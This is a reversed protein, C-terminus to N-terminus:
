KKGGKMCEKLDQIAETLKKLSKNHSYWMLLFAGIPFGVNSILQTALNIDEM